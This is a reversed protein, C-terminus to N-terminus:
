LNMCEICLSCICRNGSLGEEANISSIAKLIETPCTKGQEPIYLAETESRLQQCMAGDDILLASLWYNPASKREDYPNMTVPM